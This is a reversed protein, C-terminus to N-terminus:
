KTRMDQISLVRITFRVSFGEMGVVQVGSVAPEGKAILKNIARCAIEDETLDRHKRSQTLGEVLEVFPIAARDTATTM